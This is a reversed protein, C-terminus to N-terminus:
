KLYKYHTAPSAICILQRCCFYYFYSIHRERSNITKIITFLASRTRYRAGAGGYRGIAAWSFQIKVSYEYILTVMHHIFQFHYPVLNVVSDVPHIHKIFDLYKFFVASPRLSGHNTIWWKWCSQQIKNVRVCRANGSIYPSDAFFLGALPTLSASCVYGLKLCACWFWFAESWLVNRMTSVNKKTGLSDNSLYRFIYSSLRFKGKRKQIWFNIIFLFHKLIFIQFRRAPQVYILFFFLIGHSGYLM